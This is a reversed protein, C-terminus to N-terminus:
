LEAVFLQLAPLSWEWEFRKAEAIAMAKTWGCVKIRYLIILTGTRNEGIECHVYTGPVIAALASELHAKVPGWIQQVTTIPFRVVTLGSTEDGPETNLKLSTTIGLLKLYAWASADKPQGGRMVLSPAPTVVALNPIDHVITV